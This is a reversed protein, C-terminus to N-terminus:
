LSAEEGLAEQALRRGAPTDAIGGLATERLCSPMLRGVARMADLTEDAPIPSSLGGLAMDACTVANATGIVNRKICPVEVLGAVPDCVLGMLAQIAMAVGDLIQQCSGGRLFVLAGAAMASASGVEAQCGGEAGSLSARAAIVQGIGAAVLLSEVMRDLPAGEQQRYTLLVAPLVGCAGATPAAVIRRMCANSEGMKVARAIARGLFPGSLLAGERALKELVAGEGGALGSASRLSGDYQRDAEEMVQYSRAMRELAEQRGGGTERLHDALVVEWFPLGHQQCQARIEELSGLSM